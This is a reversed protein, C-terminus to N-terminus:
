ISNYIPNPILELIISKAQQITAFINSNNDIIYDAREQRVQDSLQRDSIMKFRKELENLNIKKSDLVFGARTLYRELRIKEDCKLTILKDYNYAKTELLLPINLVLFNLDKRNNQELFTKYSQRIKPHLIEELIKIKSSFKSYDIFLFDALVKRNVVGNEIVQPFKIAIQNISDQDNQLLDHAIKDADFIASNYQSFVECILNKGSAIGGSLGLILM